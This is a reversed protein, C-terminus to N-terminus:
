IAILKSLLPSFFLIASTQMLHQTKEIGICANEELQLRCEFSNAQPLSLSIPHVHAAPTRYRGAKSGAGFMILQYSRTGYLVNVQAGCGTICSHAEGGVVM